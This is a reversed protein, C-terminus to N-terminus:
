GSILRIGVNKQIFDFVAEPSQMLDTPIRVKGDPFFLNVSGALRPGSTSGISLREGQQRILDKWLYRKGNRTTVGEKDIFKPFQKCNVWHLILGLGWLFVLFGFCCWYKTNLKIEIKDMATRKREILLSVFHNETELTQPPTDLTILAHRGLCCQGKPTISSLNEVPIFM